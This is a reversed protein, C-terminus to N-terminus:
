VEMLVIDAPLDMRREARRRNKGGLSHGQWRREGDERRNHMDLRQRVDEPLSLLAGTLGGFFLLNEMTNLVNLMQRTETPLGVVRLKKGRKFIKRSYRVLEACVKTTIIGTETMDIVIHPDEMGVLEDFIMRLTRASDTDQDGRLTLIHVGSVEQLETLKDVM